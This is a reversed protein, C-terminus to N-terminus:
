HQWVRPKYFLELEQHMNRPPNARDVDFRAVGTTLVRWLIGSIAAAGHGEAPVVYYRIWDSVPEIAIVASGRDAKTATLRYRFGSIRPVWEARDGAIVRSVVRHEKLIADIQAVFTAFDGALEVSRRFGRGRRGFSELQFYRSM